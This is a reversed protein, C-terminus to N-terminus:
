ISLYFDIGLGIRSYTRSTGIQQHKESHIRPLIGKEMEDRCGGAMINSHLEPITRQGDRSSKLRNRRRM